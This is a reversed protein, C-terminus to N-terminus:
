RYRYSENWPYEKRNNYGVVINFRPALPLYSEFKRVSDSGPDPVTVDLM